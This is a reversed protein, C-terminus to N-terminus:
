DVADGLRLPAREVGELWRLVYDAISMCAPIAANNTAGQPPYNAGRFKPALEALPVGYQLAYSLLRAFDDILGRMTSGQKGVQVFVEGLRGDPYFGATLFVSVPGQESDIVVKHTVSRRVDPLRGREPATM